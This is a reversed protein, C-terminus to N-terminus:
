LDIEAFASHQQQAAAPDMLNKDRGGADVKKKLQGDFKRVAQIDIIRGGAVSSQLQQAKIISSSCVAALIILICFMALLDQWILM